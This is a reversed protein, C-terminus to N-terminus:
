RRKILRDQPVTVSMERPTPKVLTALLFIGAYVLGAIVGVILLLRFLTPM